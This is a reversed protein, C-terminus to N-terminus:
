NNNEDSNFSFLAEEKEDFSDLNFSNNKEEIKSINNKEELFTDNTTIIINQSLIKKINSLYDDFKQKSDDFIFKDM